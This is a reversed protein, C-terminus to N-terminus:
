GYTVHSTQWFKVLIGIIGFSTRLLSWRRWWSRVRWHGGCSSSNISSDIRIEFPVLGVIVVKTGSECGNMGRCVLFYTLQNKKNNCDWPRVFQTKVFSDAFSQALFDVKPKEM